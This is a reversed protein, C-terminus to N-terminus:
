DREARLVGGEVVARVHGGLDLMATGTRRLGTVQEAYRAAGPVPRGAARRGAAPPRAPAAGPAARWGSSRSRAAPRATPATSSPTSSRTSCRPRTACCSRRGCCTRRRPRTSRRWSRCCATASATAPTPRSRTPATTAGPSAGSRATPPPRPGPSGLLPRGPQRRPPADGAPRPSEAFLGAPLPDDRGPRRRHPRHRDDGGAAPWGPRPRTAPTARGPRSTARARPRRPREIELEAGLRECLEVCHREDEDSDDRLGYNVHLATSRAAGAACRSTSCASRTGGAPSCRWSRPEPRSCGKPLCGSSCATPTWPTLTPAVKASLRRRPRRVSRDARPLGQPQGPRDARARATGGREGHRGSRHGAGRRRAGPRRGPSRPQGPRRLLRRRPLGGRRLPHRGAAAPARPFGGLVRGGVRDALGADPSVVMVEDGITKVIAAEPPLTSEVTAVFNEVM